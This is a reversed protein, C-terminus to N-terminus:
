AMAFYIFFKESYQCNRFLGAELARIKITKPQLYINGSQSKFESILKLKNQFQDTIDVYLNATFSERTFLSPYFVLTASARRAAAISALAVNCHDQHVDKPYHTLILEPDTERIIKEIDDVLESNFSISGDPKSLPYFNRVGLFKNARKQEELRRVGNEKLEGNSCIVSTIQVNFDKRLSLLFGGCSLEIDDPHAGVALLHMGQRVLISKM